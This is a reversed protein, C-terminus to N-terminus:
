PRNLNQINLLPLTVEFETGTETISVQTEGLLRYKAILASLRHQSTEVRITKRQLSNTVQLRGDPTTRIRITLPKGPLMINYKIANDVLTQLSQPPLCLDLLAPDIEQSVRLSAGYRTHLLNTYSTIFELESQLPVVERHNAQLLYRYVKSLNDVFREAQEQDEGILSSLSTLSNFLFHPNIQMKLADLQHQLAAQRLQENETQDKHWQNYTYFVTLMICLFLDFVLGLILIPRVANWGFQTGLLPFRSFVFVVLLALLATVGGVLVLMTLIRLTAQRANPFRRIVWRIVLTLTVVALWYLVFVLGTGLAFVAGDNFYRPGILFYNGIPFLVPMMLTHYLLEGKPFFGTIRQYLPRAM